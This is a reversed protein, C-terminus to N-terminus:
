TFFLVQEPYSFNGLSPYIGMTPQMHLSHSHYTGQLLGTVGIPSTIIGLPQANVIEKRCEANHVLRKLKTIRM